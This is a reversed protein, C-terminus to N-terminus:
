RISYQKHQGRAELGRQQKLEVGPPTLIYLRRAVVYVDRTASSACRASPKRVSELRLGLSAFFARWSDDSRYLGNKDHRWQAFRGAKGMAKLDEAVVVYRRSVRAAERLLSQQKAESRKLPLSSNKVSAHHLVYNFVVLDSSKSSAPLAVGDFAQCPSGAPPAVDICRWDIPAATANRAVRYLGGSGGGVDLVEVRLASRYTAGFWRHFEDNCLHPSHHNLSRSFNTERSRTEAASAAHPLLVCAVHPALLRRM